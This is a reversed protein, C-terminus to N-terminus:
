YNDQTKAENNKGRGIWHAFALSAAETVRVIELELERELLEDGLFINM